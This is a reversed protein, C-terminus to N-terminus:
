TSFNPLRTSVVKQFACLRRLTRQSKLSELGLKKYLISRSTRKITGTIALAANYQIIDLKSNISENYPQHCLIDGYDLHSRAFLKYIALLAKRALANNLKKIASIGKSAKTIIEKIHQYFSLKKDLSVGLHNQYSCRIVLTRNFFLLPHSVNVNKKWFLFEQFQKSINPNFFMKWQYAGFSIKQLDMNMQDASQNINNVVSFLSTDDAFLKTTSSISEALDNIYILFFLTGLVSGQPVGAFM